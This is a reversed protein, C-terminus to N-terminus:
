KGTCVVFVGFLHIVNGVYHGGRIVFFYVNYLITYDSGPMLKAMALQNGGNQLWLWFYSCTEPFCVLMAYSAKISVPFVVICAFM